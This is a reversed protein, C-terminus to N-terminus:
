GRTEAFTKFLQLDRDLHATVAGEDGDVQVTVSVRLRMDPIEELM